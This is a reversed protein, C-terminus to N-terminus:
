SARLDWFQQWQTDSSCYLSRISMVAQAGNESWHMGGQKMRKTVVVKNSSEVVGSGIMLGTELYAKYDIRTKNKELYNKLTTIKDLMEREKHIKNLFELEEFVLKLESKKLRDLQEEAWEKCLIAEEAFCIKAVDWIYESVHYFDLIEIREPFMEAFRKWIWPAGDGLCVVQYNKDKAVELYASWVLPAFGDVDDLTAVYQRKVIVNRKETLKWKDEEKFVIAVKAEKTGGSRMPVGTGDMGVYIVEAAKKNKVYDSLVGGQTPLKILQSLIAKQKIQESIEIGLKETQNQLTPNSLKNGTFKEFQKRSNEYVEQISFITSLEEALSLCDTLHIENDVLIGENSFFKRKLELQGYISIFTKKKRNIAKLSKDSEILKEEKENIKDQILGELAKRSIERMFDFTARELQSATTLGKTRENLEEKLKNVIEESM